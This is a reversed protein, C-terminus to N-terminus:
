NGPAPTIVNPLRLEIYVPSHLSGKLLDVERYEFKALKSDVSISSICHTKANTRSALPNFARNKHASECHYAFVAKQDASSRVAELYRDKRYFQVAKSQILSM